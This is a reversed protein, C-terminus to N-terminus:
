ISWDPCLARAFSISLAFAWAVEQRITVDNEGIGGTFVLADLKGGLQVLYSGLYKRVRAIFVKRALRAYPDGDHIAHNISRMDPYGCLGKLGSKKNLLDSLDSVSM